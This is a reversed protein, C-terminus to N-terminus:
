TLNRATVRLNSHLEFQALKLDVVHWLNLNRIFMLRLLFSMCATRLQRSELRFFGSVPSGDGRFSNRGDESMKSRM